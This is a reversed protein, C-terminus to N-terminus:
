SFGLTAVAPVIGCASHTPLRPFIPSAGDLDMSVTLDASIQRAHHREIRQLEARDPKRSAELKAALSSERLSDPLNSAVTRRPAPRPGGITGGRRARGGRALALALAASVAGNYCDSFPVAAAGAAIMQEAAVDPM